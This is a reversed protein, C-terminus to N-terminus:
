VLFPSHSLECPATHWEFVSVSVVAYSLLLPIYDVGAKFEHVVFVVILFVLFTNYLLPIKLGGERLCFKM